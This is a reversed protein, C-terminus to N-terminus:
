KILGLKGITYDLNKILIDIAETAKLRGLIEAGAYWTSSYCLGQNLSYQLLDILAHIVRERSEASRRSISLLKKQVEGQTKPSPGYINGGSHKPHLGRILDGIENDHGQTRSQVAAQGPLASLLLLFGM